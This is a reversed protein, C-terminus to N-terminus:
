GDDEYDGVVDTEYITEAPPEPVNDDVWQQWCGRCVHVIVILDGHAFAFVNFITPQVTRTCGGYELDCWRDNKVLDIVNQLTQSGRLPWRHGARSTSVVASVDLEISPNWPALVEGCDDTGDHTQPLNDMAFHSLTKDPSNWSREYEDVDCPTDGYHSARDPSSQFWFAYDNAATAVISEWPQGEATRLSEGALMSALAKNVQEESAITPTGSANSSLLNEMEDMVEMKLRPDIPKGVLPLPNGAADCRNPPNAIRARLRAARDADSEATM